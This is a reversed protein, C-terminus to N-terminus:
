RFFIPAIVINLLFFVLATTLFTINIDQWAVTENEPHMKELIQFSFGLTMLYLGLMFGYHSIFAPHYQIGSSVSRIYSGSYETISVASFLAGISSIILGLVGVTRKKM